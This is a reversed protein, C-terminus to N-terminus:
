RTRGASQRPKSRRSAYLAADEASDFVEFDGSSWESDTATVKGIATCVITQGARIGHAADDIDVFTYAHLVISAAVM